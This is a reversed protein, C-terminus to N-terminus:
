RYKTSTDISVELECTDISPIPITGMGVEHYVCVTERSIHLNRIQELSTGCIHKFRILLSCIDLAVFHTKGYLIYWELDFRHSVIQLFHQVTYCGQIVM